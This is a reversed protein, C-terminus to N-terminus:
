SLKYCDFANLGQWGNQNFSVYYFSLIYVNVNFRLQFFCMLLDKFFTERVILISLYIFFINGGLLM